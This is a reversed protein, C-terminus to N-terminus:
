EIADYNPTGSQNALNCIREIDKDHSRIRSELQESVQDHSNGELITRFTPGWYDDVAEIEQMSINAM